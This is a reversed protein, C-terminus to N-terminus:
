GGGYTRGQDNHLGMHDQRSHLSGLSPGRHAEKDLDVHIGFGQVIVADEGIVVQGIDAM